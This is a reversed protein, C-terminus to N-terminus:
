SQFTERLKALADSAEQLAKTEEASVPAPKPTAAFLQVNRKVARTIRQADNRSKVLGAAVLAKELDSVTDFAEEDSIGKIYLMTAEDNGPFTVVSVETLEGKTIHLYEEGDEGKVSYDELFFGVSFSLGGQMKAAEYMDRVYSIKLNLEAEIWLDGNIYELRTIKGGPRNSDHQILLKIGKPGTLGKEAISAEFAGPAVVHRYHDLDKTSAWGAVFGEPKSDFAKVYQQLEDASAARFKVDFTQRSGVKPADKTLFPKNM